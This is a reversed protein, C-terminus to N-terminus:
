SRQLNANHRHSSFGFADFIANPRSSTENIYVNNALAHVPVSVVQSANQLM